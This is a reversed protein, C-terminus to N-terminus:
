WNLNGWGERHEFPPSGRAKCTGRATDQYGFASETICLRLPGAFFEDVWGVQPFSKDIGRPVEIKGLDRIGARFYVKLVHCLQGMRNAIRFIAILFRFLAAKYGRKKHKPAFKLRAELGSQLSGRIV